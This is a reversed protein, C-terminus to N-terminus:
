KYSNSTYNFGFYNIIKVKIEKNRNNNILNRIVQFYKGTQETPIIHSLELIIHLNNVTNLDIKCNLIREFLNNQLKNKTTSMLNFNLNNNVINNLLNLYFLLLNTTENPKVQINNSEELFLNFLNNLENNSINKLVNTNVSFLENFLIQMENFSKGSFFLERNSYLIDSFKPFKSKNKLICTLISNIMNINETDIDKLKDEFFSEFKDFIKQDFKCFNSFVNFLEIYKKLEDEKMLSLDFYEFIVFIGGMNSVVNNEKNEFLQFDSNKILNRNILFILISNLCKNIDEFSFKSNPNMASVGSKVIKSLNNLNTMIDLITITNKENSLINFLSCNEFYRLLFKESLNFTKKM